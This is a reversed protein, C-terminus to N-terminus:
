RHVALSGFGATAIVDLGTGTGATVTTDPAIGSQRRGYLTVEGAGHQAQVRVPLQTETKITWERIGGSMHIPLPRAPLALSVADAGGDLDVARINGGTLAFTATRVGGTMRITWTIRDDLMVDLRGNGPTGTNHTTIRLDTGTTTTSPTIGSGPPTTVRVPGRPRGLTLNLETVNSALEFTGAEFARPGTAGHAPGDTPPPAAAPDSPNGTLAVAVLVGTGSLIALVILVAATRSRRRPPVTAEPLAPVPPFEETPPEDVPEPEPAPEPQGPRYAYGAAGSLLPYTDGSDM